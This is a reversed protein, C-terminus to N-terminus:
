AEGGLAFRLCNLYKRLARSRCVTVLEDLLNLDLKEFFESDIRLKAQLANIGEWEPKRAALTDVLARETGAILYAEGKSSHREVGLLFSSTTIPVKQYVFQGFANAFSGARGRSIASQVAAPEEQLWGHYGLASEMSVYSEPVIRNAIVFLGPSEGGIEPNLAYLGRKLRIIEGKNLARNVLGWRSAEGGEVLSSIVATSVVRGAFGKRLLLESLRELTGGKLMSTNHANQPLLAVDTLFKRMMSTDSLFLVWFCKAKLRIIERKKLARNVPGSSALFPHLCANGAGVGVKFIGM